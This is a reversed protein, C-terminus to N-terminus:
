DEYDQGKCQRDLDVCGECTFGDRLLRGDSQGACSLPRFRPSMRGNESSLTFTAIGSAQRRKIPKRPNNM